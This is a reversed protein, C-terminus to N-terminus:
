SFIPKYKDMQPVKLTRLRNIITRLFAHLSKMHTVCCLCSPDNLWEYREVFKRRAETFSIPKPLTDVFDLFFHVQHKAFAAIEAKVEPSVNPAIPSRLLGHHKRKKRRKTQSIPPFPSIESSVWELEQRVNPLTEVAPTQPLPPPPLSRTNSVVFQPLFAFM